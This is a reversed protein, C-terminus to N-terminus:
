KLEGIMNDAENMCDQFYKKLNAQETTGKMADALSRVLRLASLASEKKKAYKPSQAKEGEAKAETHAKKATTLSKGFGSPADNLLGKDIATKKVKQWDADEWKWPTSPFDQAPDKGNLVKDLETHRGPANAQLILAALYAGFKKHESFNGHMENLAQQLKGLESKIKTAMERKKKLDTQSGFKANDDLYSKLSSEVKKAMSDASEIAGEKVALDYAARFDKATLNTNPANFGVNNQDDECGLMRKRSENILFLVYDAMEKVMTKQSSSYKNAAIFVQTLAVKYDKRAKVKEKADTTSDLATKKDAATKLAKGVDGPSGKGKLVVGAEEASKYATEWGAQEFKDKSTNTWTVGSGFLKGDLDKLAAATQQIMATLHDRMKQVPGCETWFGNLASLLDNYKEQATIRADRQKQKDTATDQFNPDAIAKKVAKLASEIGPDKTSLNCKAAMDDFNAKWDAAELNAPKVAAWDQKAKSVGAGKTEDRTPPDTNPDSVPGLDIDNIKARIAKSLDVLYLVTGKHEEVKGEEGHPNTMPYYGSVTGLAEELADLLEIRKAAVDGPKAKALAAEAKEVKGLAEGIGSSEDFLGAAIAKPKVEKDWHAHTLTITGSFKWTEDYATKRNKGVDKIKAIKNVAAKGAKMVGSGLLGEANAEAWNDAVQTEDKQGVDSLMAERLVKLAMAGDLDGEEIGRQVLFKQALPKGERALIAIYMKAYLNCNEFIQMRAIPNGAQAESILKKATNAMGWEINTFVIKGGVEIAKGAVRIAVGAASGMGSVEGIAGALAMSKTTVDLTDKSIQVHRGTLENKLANVFAGGDEAEGLAWEYEAKKSMLRTQVARTSHQILNKLALALDISATAIAIGPLVKTAMLSEKPIPFNKTKCITSVAKTVTNMSDLIKAGVDAIQDPTAHLHSFDGKMAAEVWAKGTGWGTNGLAGWQGLTAAIEKDNLWGGIDSTKQGTQASVGGAAMDRVDGFLSMTGLVFEACGVATELLESKKEFMEQVRERALLRETKRWAQLEEVFEPPWWTKPIHALVKECDAINGGCDKIARAKAVLEDQVKYIEKLQDPEPASILQDFYFDVREFEKTSKAEIAGKFVSVQRQKDTDSFGQTKLQELKTKKDDDSLCLTDIRSQFNPTWIALFEEPIHECMGVSLAFADRFAKKQDETANKPVPPLKKLEANMQKERDKASGIATGIAQLAARRKGEDKLELVDQMDTFGAFASIEGKVANRHTDMLARVGTFDIEKPLDNIIMDVMAQKAFTARDANSSRQAQKVAKDNIAKNAQIELTTLKAIAEKFKKTKRLDLAERLLASLPTLKTKDVGETKTVTDLKSKASTLKAEYEQIWQDETKQPKPPPTPKVKGTANSRAITRQLATTM